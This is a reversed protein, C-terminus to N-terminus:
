ELGLKARLDPPLLSIAKAREEASLSSGATPKRVIAKSAPKDVQQASETSTQKSTDLPDIQKHVPMSKVSGRQAHKEPNAKQREEHSALYRALEPSETFNDRESYYQKDKEPSRTKASEEFHQMIPHADFPHPTYVTPSKVDEVDIHKGNVKIEEMPYANNHGHRRVEGAYSEHPAQQLFGYDSGRYRWGKTKTKYDGIKYKGSQVKPDNHDEYQNLFHNREWPKPDVSEVKLKGLSHKQAMDAMDVIKFLQQAHKNAVAHNGSNLAAKYNSAHHSLADHIMDPHYEPDVKEAFDRLSVNAADGRHKATAMKELSEYVLDAFLDDKMFKILNKMSVDQAKKALLERFSDLKM